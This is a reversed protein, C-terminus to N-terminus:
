SEKRPLVLNLYVSPGNSNSSSKGPQDIFGAWKLAHERADKDGARVVEGTGRCQPCERTTLKKGTGRCAACVPNEPYGGKKGYGNCEDCLQLRLEIIGEGQCAPCLAPRNSAAVVLDDALQPAASVLKMMALATSHSRWMEALTDLGIGCKKAAAVITKSGSGRQKELRLLEGLFKMARDSGLTALASKLETSTCLGDVFEVYIPDLDASKPVLGRADRAFGPGPSEAIPTVSHPVHAQVRVEPLDIDMIDPQLIDDDM